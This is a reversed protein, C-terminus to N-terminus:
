VVKAENRLASVLAAAAESPTGDFLHAGARGAPLFH